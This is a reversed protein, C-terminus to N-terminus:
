IVFIFHFEVQCQPCAQTRQLKGILDLVTLRVDEFFHERFLHKCLRNLRKGRSDAM